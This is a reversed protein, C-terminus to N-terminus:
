TLKLSAVHHNVLFLDSRPCGDADPFPVIHAIAQVTEAPIVAMYVDSGPVTEAWKLKMLGTSKDKGASDFWRLFVFPGDKPRIDIM